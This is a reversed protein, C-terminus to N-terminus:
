VDVWSSTPMKKLLKKSILMILKKLRKNNVRMKSKMWLISSMRPSMRKLKNRTSLTIKKVRFNVFM